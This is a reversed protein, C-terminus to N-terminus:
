GGPKLGWATTERGCGRPAIRVSFVFLATLGGNTGAAGGLAKDGTVEGGGLRGTGLLLSNVKLTGAEAAVIEGGSVGLKGSLM